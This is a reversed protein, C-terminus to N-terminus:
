STSIGHRLGASVEPISWLSQCWAKICRTDSELSRNVRPVVDPRMGSSEGAKLLIPWDMDTTDSDPLLPEFASWLRHQSGLSSATNILDPQFAIIANRVAEVLDRDGGTGNARLLALYAISVIALDLLKRIREPPRANASTGTALDKVEGQLQGGLWSALRKQRENLIAAEFFEGNAQTSPLGTPTAFPPLQGIQAAPDATMSAPSSRATASPPLTGDLVFSRIGSTRHEELVRNVIPCEPLYLSANFVRSPPPSLGAASAVLAVLDSSTHADQRSKGRTGDFTNYRTLWAIVKEELNLSYLRVDSRAISLCKAVLLAISDVPYSPGQIDIM